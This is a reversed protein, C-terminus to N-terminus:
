KVIINKIEELKQTLLYNEETLEICSNYLNLEDNEFFYKWELLSREEGILEERYDNSEIYEKLDELSSISFKDALETSESKIVSLIDYVTVGKRFLDFIKKSLKDRQIECFYESWEAFTRCDEDESNVYDNYDYFDELEPMVEFPNDGFVDVVM